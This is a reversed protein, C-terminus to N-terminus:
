FINWGIVFLCLVFFVFFFKKNKALLRRSSGSRTNAWVGEEEEEEEEDDDRREVEDLSGSNLSLIDIWNSSRRARQLMSEAIGRQDEVQEISLFVEGGYGTM